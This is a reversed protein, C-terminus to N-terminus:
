EGKVIKGDPYFLTNAIRSPKKLIDMSGPRTAIQNIPMTRLKGTAWPDILRKSTKTKSM